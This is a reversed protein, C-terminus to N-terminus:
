NEEKVKDTLHTGEKMVVFLPMFHKGGALELNVILSDKISELKDVSQYIEARYWIRIGHRNLTADSRGKIVLTNRDTILLWDGHRWVGPYEEFYSEKYREKRVDGWFYIPMSPMPKTVVMEGVENVLAKGHDDYAFM